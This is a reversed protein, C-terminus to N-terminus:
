EDSFTDISRSFTYNINYMGVASASGSLSAQLSNYISNGDLSTNIGENEDFGHHCECSGQSRAPAPTTAFDSELLTGNQRERVM